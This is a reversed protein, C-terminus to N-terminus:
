ANKDVNLLGVFSDFDPAVGRWYADAWWIVSPKKLNDRYDFCFPAGDGSMGFCVIKSFDVIDPIFSPENQWKSPEEYYGDAAFYKPLNNTELIIADETEYIKSLESELRNGYADIEERLSWSGIERRLTGKGIAEVFSTPLKLGDIQM